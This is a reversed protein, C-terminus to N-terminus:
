NCYRDLLRRTAEVKKEEDTTLKPANAKMQKIIRAWRRRDTYFMKNLRRM